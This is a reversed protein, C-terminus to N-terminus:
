GAARHDSGLIGKGVHTRCADLANSEKSPKGGMEGLRCSEGQQGCGAIERTGIRSELEDKQAKQEDSFVQITPSENRRDADETQNLIAFMKFYEEQSIPDYKHTHCQACNMTTGMWTQMTTNVRDVIAVNRYEEDNTGGENNTQTNRHFATAVLQEETPNELLDGALQEITFQDFPTNENFARIIYDRYGWITRAPDDAYGASDAYRALDLWMRAWHEGFAPKALLRDVLKEYADVSPDNVFADVEEKTPPLGTLDLSVRRILAYRDTEPAYQLGEAKLRRLLFADIANQHGEPVKSRSPKTYSWHKEYDAGEVIWQKFLAVQEKTFRQGAKPPPMVEDPDDTTLRYILESADIDGPVIARVGDREALAHDRIDLRLKAKRAAEDPGHCRFCTNSLLPRIDDNFSVEAAASNLAAIALFHNIAPSKM